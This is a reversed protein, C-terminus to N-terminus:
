IEIHKKAGKKEPPFTQGMMKQSKRGHGMSVRPRQPRASRIPKAMEIAGLGLQRDSSGSPKASFPTKTVRGFASLKSDM